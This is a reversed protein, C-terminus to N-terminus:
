FLQFKTDHDVTVMGWEGHRLSNKKKMTTAAPQCHLKKSNNSSCNKNPEGNRNLQQYCAYHLFGVVLLPPTSINIALVCDEAYNCLTSYISVSSPPSIM